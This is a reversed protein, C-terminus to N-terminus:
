KISNQEIPIFILVNSLNPKVNTYLKMTTFSTDRFSLCKESLRISTRKRRVKFMNTVMFIPYGPYFLILFNGLSHLSIWLCSCCIVMRQRQAPIFKSRAETWELSQIEHFKWSKKEVAVNM